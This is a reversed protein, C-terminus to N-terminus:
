QDIIHCSTMAQRASPLQLIKCGLNRIERMTSCAERDHVSFVFPGPILLVQYVEAAILGMLQRLCPLPERSRRGNDLYIRPERLGLSRAYQRLARQHAEMKWVDFPYCRLYAATELADPETITPGM